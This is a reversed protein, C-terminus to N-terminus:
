SRFAQDAATKRENRARRLADDAVRIVRTCATHWASVLNIKMVPPTTEESPLPMAAAEMLRRRPPGCGLELLEVGQMM